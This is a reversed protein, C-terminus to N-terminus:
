FSYDGFRMEFKFNMRVMEILEDDYYFKYEKRKSKNRHPLNIGKLNLESTLRFFDENLNEFRLCKVNEFIKKRAFLSEEKLSIFEELSAISGIFQAFDDREYRIDGRHPSFYFSVLRDFPNRITVYVKYNLIDSGIANYYDQLSSHKVLNKYKENRVDFRELGDQHSATAVIKDSAHERLADQISNGGTKPYHIFIVKKEDFIM